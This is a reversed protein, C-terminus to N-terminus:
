HVGPLHSEDDAPRSRRARRGYRKHMPTFDSADPTAPKFEVKEGEAEADAEAQGDASEEFHLVQRPKPRAARKAKRESKPLVKPDGAVGRYKSADVVVNSVVAGSDDIWIEEWKGHHHRRTRALDGEEPLRVGATAGDSYAVSVMPRVPAHPKNTIVTGEETVAYDGRFLVSEEGEEPVSLIFTTNGADFARTAAKPAALAAAASFVIPIIISHKM